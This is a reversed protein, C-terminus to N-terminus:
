YRRRDPKWVIVGLAVVYFTAVVTIAWKVFAQVGGDPQFQWVSLVIIALSVTTGAHIIRHFWKDDHM